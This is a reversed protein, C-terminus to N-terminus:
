SFQVYEDSISLDRPTKRPINRTASFLLPSQPIHSEPYITPVPDLEFNLQVRQKGYILYKSKFHDSCIVSTNSPKWEKRSVFKVCRQNLVEDNSCLSSLLHGVADRKRRKM